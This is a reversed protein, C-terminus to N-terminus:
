RWKLRHTFESIDCLMEHIRPFYYLSLTVWPKITLLGSNVVMRRCIYNKYGSNIIALHFPVHECFADQQRNGALVTTYQLNHIVDYRYVAMGGFASRVPYYDCSQVQRDMKRGRQPLAHLTDIMEEDCAMLAYQDYQSRVYKGNPLMHRGNALLAGWDAPAHCIGDMVGEVDFDYIDVDMMVVVDPAPLQRIDDLLRNRLYAMHSIRHYDSSLRRRSHHIFSDVMVRSNEEAWDHLVQPTGDVSDNEVVVVHSDEFFSCLREIRPKNRLISAKCDRALLGVVVSRYKM